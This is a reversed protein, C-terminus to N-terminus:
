DTEIGNDVVELKSELERIRERLENNEIELYAIRDANNEVEMLAIAQGQVTLM